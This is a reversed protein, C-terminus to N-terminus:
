IGNEKNHSGEILGYVDRKTVINADNKWLAAAEREVRHGTPASSFIRNKM